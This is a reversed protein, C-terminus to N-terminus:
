IDKSWNCMRYWPHGIPSPDSLAPVSEVSAHHTRSSQFAGIRQPREAPEHANVAAHEAEEFQCM